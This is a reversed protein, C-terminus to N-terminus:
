GMRQRKGTESLEEKSGSLPKGAGQRVGVEGAPMAVPSGESRSAVIVAGLFVRRSSDSRLRVASRVPQGPMGPAGPDACALRGGPM